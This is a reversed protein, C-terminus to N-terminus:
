EHLGRKSMREKREAIMKAYEKQQEPTLITRVRAQAKEIAAETQPRLQERIAMIEKRTEHIIARVQELQRGDLHLRRDLRSVIAEERTPVRGSIISEIRYKYYLHTALTGCLIGLIFVMVIGMAPRISKM